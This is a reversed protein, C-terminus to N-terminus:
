EGGGLAERLVEQLLAGNLALSEQIQAELSACLAQLQGLQVLIRHQSILPPLPILFEKIKQMGLDPISHDTTNLMAQQLVFGSDLVRQIYYIDPNITRITCCSYSVIFTEDTEVVRAKGLRAGIRSYIIDNRQPIIKRGLHAFDEISILKIDRTFNITGDDLLDKASLFKIGKDVARPMNHDIDSIHSCVEGLRCWVWGEPLEFPMEEATIPPLPKDAKIKKEKVLKAKEARIHALLEPGSAEWLKGYQKALAAEGEIAQDTSLKGQVAEQLLQQRLQKVLSLQHTLETTIEACNLQQEKVAIVKNSAEKPLNSKKSNVNGSKILELFSVIMEQEQIPPIPILFQELNYKPLGERGSGTTSSFILSQFYPTLILEHVFAPILDIPRIICVHQSVNGEGFDAPVLACRGMSGGTINLLIDNALVTTGAMQSHVVDSIYMIDDYMIGDNYVNQSRFFPKGSSAYDSGKPTSGSGIKSCVEGLRCWIWNEPIDFPYDSSGVVQFERKRDRNSKGEYKRAQIQDFLTSGEHKTMPKRVSGLKRLVLELYLGRSKQAVQDRADLENGKAKRGRSM